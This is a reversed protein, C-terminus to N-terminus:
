DANNPSRGEDSPEGNAANMMDENGEDVIGLSEKLEGERKIQRLTQRWDRGMRGQEDELTSLNYKMRLVAAQTEKLEDIQGQNAGIWSCASYADANMGEYWNPANRPMSTIDGKNIAEELWLRFFSSAYRDAVMRKEVRNRRATNSMAARLNSYNANAYDKSFEEYSMGFAAALYRMMSQEFNAGIGSNSGANQIKFSTGPFLHPIRLGDMQMARSSGAYQAVHGLYQQAYEGVANGMNNFDKGGLAAFAESSPLSSEISAAYSAQLAAAQLSIDRYKKTMRMEKLGSVVASIGRTQDARWQGGIIHIIMQRDWKPRKKDALGKTAPVYTWENSENTLWDTPYAKRIWYGLPAGFRNRHVGGKTTASEPIEPPNSLRDTDIMQLATNYPRPENRLWEVSSLVEGAMAHIGVALRTLGTLTMHRQADPYNRLGEAYLTFKAEVEEQFETAWTEDLGLVRNEPKSNLLFMEGVIADQQSRAGNAVYADNRFADRVRNDVTGKEPLIEADASLMPPNYMGLERSHKSSAEYAGGMGMEKPVTEIGILEAAEKDIVPAGM